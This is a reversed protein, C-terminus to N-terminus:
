EEILSFKYSTVSKTYAKKKASRSTIEKAVMKVDIGAKKLTNRVLNFVEPNTSANPLHFKGAKIAEAARELTFQAAKKIEKQTQREKKKLAAVMDERTIM